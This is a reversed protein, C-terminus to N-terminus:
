RLTVRWCSQTFSATSSRLVYTAYDVSFLNSVLFTSFRFPPYPHLFCGKLSLGSALVFGEGSGSVLEAESWSRRLFAASFLIHNWGLISPYLALWSPGQVLYIPLHAPVAQFIVLVGGVTGFYSAWVTTWKLCEGPVALCFSCFRFKENLALLHKPLIWKPLDHPLPTWSSWPGVCVFM